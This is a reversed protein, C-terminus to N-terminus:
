AVPQLLDVKTSRALALGLIVAAAFSILGLVGMATTLRGVVSTLGLLILPCLFQGIFLVGSGRGIARGRQDISLRAVIWTLGTPILMASAFSTVVAGVVALPVSPAIWITVLGLGSLALMAPVIGQPGFKATWRFTVSGAAAALSSIATFGGIAATNKVGLGTLVYPLEVLISFFVIGTLFGVILPLVMYGVPIPPLQVRATRKANQRDSRPEWVAILVPVFLILSLGYLWFPARWGNEGLVGGVGLFIAASFSTVVTSLSLYRNRRRGSFYDTLLATSATLVAAETIGVGVRSLLIGWLSDLYLPATGLIAYVILAVLLIRRRGIRDVISGAFPATIGIALSPITLILPVLAASGAVESFQKSLLPLVPSILTAGLVPFCTALLLIVALRTRAPKGTGPNTAADSNAPSTGGISTTSNTM